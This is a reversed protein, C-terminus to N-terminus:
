AHLGPGGAPEGAKSSRGGRNVAEDIAWLVDTVGFPTPVVAPIEDCRESRGPQGLLVIPLLPDVRRFETVAAAASCGRMQTDVLAVRIGVRDTTLEDLAEFGDAAARVEMGRAELLHTLCIRVLPECGVLLVAGIGALPNPTESPQEPRALSELQSVLDDPGHLNRLQHAAATAFAEATRVQWAKRASDRFSESSVPACKSAQSSAAM